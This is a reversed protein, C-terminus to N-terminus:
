GTMTMNVQYEHPKSGDGMVSHGAQPTTPTPLAVPTYDYDRPDTYHSGWTAGGGRQARGQAVNGPCKDLGMSFKQEANLSGQLMEYTTDVREYRIVNESKKTDDFKEVDVNSAYVTEGNGYRDRPSRSADVTDRASSAHLLLDQYESISFPSNSHPPNTSFRADLLM